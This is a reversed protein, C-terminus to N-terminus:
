GNRETKPLSKQEGIFESVGVEKEKKDPVSKIREGNQTSKRSKGVGSVLKQLGNGQIAMTTTNERANIGVM